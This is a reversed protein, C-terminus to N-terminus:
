VRIAVYFGHTALSERDVWSTAKTWSGSLHINERGIVLVPLDEPIEAEGDEGPRRRVVEVDGFVSEAEARLCSDLYRLEPSRAAEPHPSRALATTLYFRGRETEIRLARM